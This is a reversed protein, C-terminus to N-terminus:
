LGGSVKLVVFAEVENANGMAHNKADFRQTGKVAIEDTTWYVQDSQSIRIGRRDGLKSGASLNGFLVPRSDAVVDTAEVMVSVPVVPYGLFKVRSHGDVLELATNGGAADLIPAMCADWVTDNVYWKCGMGYRRYRSPVMAIMKRFHTVLLANLAVAPAYLGKKGTMGTVIRL